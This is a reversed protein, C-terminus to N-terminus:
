SVFYMFAMMHLTINNDKQLIHKRSLMQQRKSCKSVVRGSTNEAFLFGDVLVMIQEVICAM